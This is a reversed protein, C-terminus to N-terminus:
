IRDLGKNFIDRQYLILELLTDRMNESRKTLEFYQFATEKNTREPMLQAASAIAEVLFIADFHIMVYTFILLLQHPHYKGRSKNFQEFLNNADKLTLETLRSSSICNEERLFEIIQNIAKVILEEDIYINEDSFIKFLLRTEEIMTALKVDTKFEEIKKSYLVQIDERKRIYLDRTMSNIESSVNGSILDDPDILDKTHCELIFALMKLREESTKARPESILYKLHQVTILGSSSEEIDPYHLKRDKMLRLIMQRNVKFKRNESMKRKGGPERNFFNGKLV